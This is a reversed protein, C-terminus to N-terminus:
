SFFKPLALGVPKPTATPIYKNFTIFNLQLFHQMPNQHQIFDTEYRAKYYYMVPLSGFRYCRDDGQLLPKGSVFDTTEM